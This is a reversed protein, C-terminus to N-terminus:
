QGVEGPQEICGTDGKRQSGAVVESDSDVIVWLAQAVNPWM